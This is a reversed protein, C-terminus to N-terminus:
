WPSRRLQRGMKMYHRSLAQPKVNMRKKRVKVAQHKPHPILM